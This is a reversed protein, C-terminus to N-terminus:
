GSVEENWLLIGRLTDIVGRGTGRVRNREDKGRHHAMDDDGSLHPLLAVSNGAPRFGSSRECDDGYLGCGAGYGERLGLTQSEQMALRRAELKFQEKEAESMSPPLYRDAAKGIVKSILDIGATVPDLAM